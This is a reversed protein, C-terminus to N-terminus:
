ASSPMRSGRQDRPSPSTYLLCDKLKVSEVIGVKVGAVKVATNPIIGSADAVELPHKSQATFVGAGKAVKMSMYGVLVFSTVFLLGVKLEPKEFM